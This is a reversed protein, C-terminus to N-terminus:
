LWSTMNIGHSTFPSLNQPPDFEGPPHCLFWMGALVAFHVIRHLPSYKSIILNIRLITASALFFSEFNALNTILFLPPRSPVREALGATSNGITHIHHQLVGIGFAGVVQLADYEPIPPSVPKTFFAIKSNFFYLHCTYTFYGGGFNSLLPSPPLM